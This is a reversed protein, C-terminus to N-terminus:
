VAQVRHLGIGCVCWGGAGALAALATLTHLTDLTSIV